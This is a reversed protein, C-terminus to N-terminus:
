LAADSARGFCSPRKARSRLQLKVPAGETEAYMECFPLFRVHAARSPAPTYDSSDTAIM